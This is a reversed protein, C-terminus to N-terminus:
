REPAKPAIARLLSNFLFSGIKESAARTQVPLKQRQWQNLGGALLYADGRCLLALKQSALQTRRGTRCYFVVKGGAIPTAQDMESLPLSRSAPISAAEHEHAERVDIFLAGNQQLEKAEQPQVSKLFKAKSMM